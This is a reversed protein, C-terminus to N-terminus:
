LEFIGNQRKLTFFGTFYPTEAADIGSEFTGGPTM